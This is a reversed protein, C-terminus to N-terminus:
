KKVNISLNHKPSDQIKDLIQMFQGFPINQDIQLRLWSAQTQVAAKDERLIKEFLIKNTKKNETYEIYDKNFSIQGVEDNSVNSFLQIYVVPLFFSIASLSGIIMLLQDLLKNM